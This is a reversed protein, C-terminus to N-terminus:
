DMCETRLSNPDEDEDEDEEDEDEDEDEDENLYGVNDRSDDAFFGREEIVGDVEATILSEVGVRNLPLM